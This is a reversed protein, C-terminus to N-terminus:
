GAREKWAQVRCTKPQPCWRANAMSTEFWRGCWECKHETIETVRRVKRTRSRIRM